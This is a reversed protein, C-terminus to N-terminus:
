LYLINFYISKYFLLIYCPYFKCLKLHNNKKLEKLNIQIIWYILLFYTLM